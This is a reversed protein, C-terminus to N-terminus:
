EAFYDKTVIGLWTLDITLLAALITLYLPILYVM